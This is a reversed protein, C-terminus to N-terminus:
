LSDYKTGRYGIKLFGQEDRPFGYIGGKEGDRIGVAFSPFKEPGFREWLELDDRPIEYFAVSGATTECLGDLEPILSPTWGGCAMIM